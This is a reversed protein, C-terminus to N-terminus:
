SDSIRYVCKLYNLNLEIVFGNITYVKFLSYILLCAQDIKLM